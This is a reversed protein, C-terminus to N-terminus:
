GGGFLFSNSLFLELFLFRLLFIVNKKAMLPLFCSPFNVFNRLFEGLFMALRIGYRAGFICFLISPVGRFFLDLRFVPLM